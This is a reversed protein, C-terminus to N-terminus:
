VMRDRDGHQGHQRDCSLVLADAKRRRHLDRDGGDQADKRYDCEPRQSRDYDTRGPQEGVQWTPIIRM